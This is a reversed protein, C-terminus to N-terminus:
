IPFNDLIAPLNHLAYAFLQMFLSDIKLFSDGGAEEIRVWGTRDLLVGM